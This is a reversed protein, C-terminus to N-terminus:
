HFGTSFWVEYQRAHSVYPMGEPLYSIIGTSRFFSQVENAIRQAEAADGTSFYRLESTETPRDVNGAVSQIEVVEYGLQTLQRKLDEAARKQSENALQLYIHPRPWTKEPARLPQATTNLKPSVKKLGRLTKIRWEGSERVIEIPGQWNTQRYEADIERFRVSVTAKNGGPNTVSVQDVQIERTSSFMASYKQFSMESRFGISLLNYAAVPDREAFYGFYRRLVGEPTAADPHAQAPQEITKTAVATATVSPLPVTRSQVASEPSVSPASTPKPEPTALSQSPTIPQVPASASKQSVFRSFLVASVILLGIILSAILIKSGGPREKPSPTPIGPAPTQRSAASATADPQSVCASIQAAIRNVDAKATSTDISLWHVTALLYDLSRSPESQDFRVPVINREFKLAREVERLVHPSSNSNVTYVLVFCSCEEIARMIADAYSGGPPIDRPAIWCNTGRGELAKLLMEAFTKDKDSYSIFVRGRM